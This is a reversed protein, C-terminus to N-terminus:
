GIELLVKGVAERREMVALAEAFREMPYSRMVHPRIRGARALRYLKAQIEQMLHPQRDYYQAVPSGVVAINKLILYNTALQPIRGETFGVVVIRGGWALARVAGDFVDGGVVDICVDVGQGDTAAQVQRRIADKDALGATDIVADAGAAKAAEGKAATSVAALVSAAGLARALNVVALGVGGAAGTVLVTEGPRFGGRIVLATWATPYVLGMAAADAFGVGEPIRFANAVPVAAKEAFAGAHVYFMARDGVAWGAVGDGVGVVTGAADKGLVFPPDPRYQYKSELMLLDPFNVTAAAVRVLIEGPGASPDPMDTLRVASRDHLAHVAVARM